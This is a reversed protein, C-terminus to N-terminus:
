NISFRYATYLRNIYNISHQKIISTCVICNEISANDSLYKDKQENKECSKVIRVLLLRYGIVNHQIEQEKSNGSTQIKRKAKDLICYSVKQVTKLLLIDEYECFTVSYKLLTECIFIYTFLGCYNYICCNQTM